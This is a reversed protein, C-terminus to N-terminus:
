RRRGTSNKLARPLRSIDKPKWKKKNGKAMQYILTGTLCLRYVHTTLKSALFLAKVIQM